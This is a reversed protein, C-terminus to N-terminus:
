LYAPRFSVSASGSGSGAALSLTVTQGAPLSCGELPDSTPRLTYLRDATGGLRVTGDTSSVELVEGDALSTEFELSWGASCEVRPNVLPGALSLVVPADASGTNTVAVAGGVTTGYELPYELPYELGGTSSALALAASQESQDYRRPDACRWQVSAEVPAHTFHREQPIVRGVVRAMRYSAGTSDHVVLPQDVHSPQTAREIAALALAKAAPTGRVLFIGTVILSGPYAAGPYDGPGQPRPSDSVEVDPLDRWGILARLRASTGAGMTTHGFRVQGSDVPTSETAAPDVPIGGTDDYAM